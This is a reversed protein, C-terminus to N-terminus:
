GNTKEMKMKMIQEAVTFDFQDDIEYNQWREILFPLTRESYFLRSKRFEPVRAIYVVGYPFYANDAQQRQYIKKKEPAYPVVYGDPSIKKILSPHEMHIKGVSVLSVAQNNQILLEIATDIDGPKRLPSTPELLVIYDYSKGEQNLQDLAHIVVDASSSDDRALEAPRLFPVQAGAQKAIGAIEESDTSVIMDDLYRSALAQEITWVILPKGCFKLINKNPLGKSNGRATIIGLIKKDNLM